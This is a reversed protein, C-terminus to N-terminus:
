MYMYIYILLKNLLFHHGMEDNTKVLVYIHM